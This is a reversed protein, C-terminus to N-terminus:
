MKGEAMNRKVQGANLCLLNNINSNRIVDSRLYNFTYYIGKWKYIPM